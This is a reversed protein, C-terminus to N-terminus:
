IYTAQSSFAMPVFSIGRATLGPMEHTRRDKEGSALKYRGM